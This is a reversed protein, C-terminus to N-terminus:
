SASASAAPPPASYEENESDTADEDDKEQDSGETSLRDFGKRSYGRHSAFFNGLNLGGGAKGTHSLFPRHHKM